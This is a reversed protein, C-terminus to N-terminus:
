RTFAFYIVYIWSTLGHLICWFISGNRSWSLIMALAAGFVYPVTASAGSDGSALQSELEDVRSRLEDLDDQPSEQHDEELAWGKESLLELGLSRQGLQAL